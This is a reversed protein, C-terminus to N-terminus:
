GLGQQPLQRGERLGWLREGSRSAKPTEIRSAKPAEVRLADFKVGEADRTRREGRARGRFSKRGGQKSSEPAPATYQSVLWLV